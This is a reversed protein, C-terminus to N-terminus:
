AVGIILRPRAIDCTISGTSSTNSRYADLTTHALPLLFVDTLHQIHWATFALCEAGLDGCGGKWILAFFIM